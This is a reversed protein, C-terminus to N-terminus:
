HWKIDTKSIVKQFDKSNNSYINAIPYHLGPCIRILTNSNPQFFMTYELGTLVQYEKFTNIILNTENESKLEAYASYELSYCLQNLIFATIEDEKSNFNGIIHYVTENICKLYIRNKRNTEDKLKLVNYCGTAVDSNLILYGQEDKNFNDISPIITQNLNFITYFLEHYLTKIYDPFKIDLQQEAKKIKDFSLLQSEKNVKFLTRIIQYAM